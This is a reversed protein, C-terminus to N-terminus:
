RECSRILDKVARHKEDMLDRIHNELIKRDGEEEALRTQLSNLIGAKATRDILYSGITHFIEPHKELESRLYRISREKKQEYSEIIDKIEKPGLGLEDVYHQMHRITANAAYAVGYATLISTIRDRTIM